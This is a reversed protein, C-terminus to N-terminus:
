PAGLLYAPSARTAGGSSDPDCGGYGGFPDPSYGASPTTKSRSRLRSLASTRSAPQEERTFAVHSLSVPMWHAGFADPAWISRCGRYDVAIRRQSRECRTPCIGSSLAALAAERSRTGGRKAILLDGTRARSAGSGRTGVWIRCERTSPGFRRLIGRSASRSPVAAPAHAATRLPAGEVASASSRPPSGSSADAAAPEIRSGPSLRRRRRSSAATGTWRASESAQAQPMASRAGRPRSTGKPAAAPRAIAASSRPTIPRLNGRM